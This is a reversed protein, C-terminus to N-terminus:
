VMIHDKSYSPSRMFNEGSLRTVDKLKHEERASIKRNLYFCISTYVIYGTLLLINAIGLELINGQSWDYRYYYIYENKISVLLSTLTLLLVILLFLLHFIFKLTPSSIM